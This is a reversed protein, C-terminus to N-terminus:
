EEITATEGGAITGLALRVHDPTSASLFHVSGDLFVFNVGKGAHVSSFGGASNSIQFRGSIDHYNFPIGISGLCENLHNRSWNTGMAWTGYDDNHGGDDSDPFFAPDTLLRVREGVAATNSAGDSVQGIQVISNQYFAGDRRWPNDTYQGWGMFGAPTVWGGDDMHLICEGSGQSSAPNGISGSSVVAYSISFREPIGSSDYGLADTSAPCRYFPLVAQSAILYNGKSWDPVRVLPASAFLADQELYPLLFYGWFTCDYPGADDGHDHRALAPPLYKYTDHYNHLALGIQKMNNTCETLAAAERVKQVAPVLLAILIAIIAIVVLL